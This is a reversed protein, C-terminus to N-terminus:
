IKHDCALSTHCRSNCKVKAKFCKCRNSSCRNAGSCNCKVFGQGGCKSELQVARRLGIDSVESVDERTLLRQTCLDFQNRAYKGQLMGGRVAIRYLDNCDRDIIVGMINRPDGRGRDVLPIPVTVNDGPNGPAHELRSRKIMRESREAQQVIGERARKRHPLTAPAIEEAQAASNSQAPAIEEAQAASTSPAIDTSVPNFAAFLDDETVLRELIETPLNTSRLGVRPNGGFLASFPTQKITSHYSTNKMFQVFKLGVPWDTSSNDGMWAILMDKIDCNLREM